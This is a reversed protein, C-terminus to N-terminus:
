GPLQQGQPPQTQAQSQALESQPQSSYAVPAGPLVEGREIADTESMARRLGEMEDIVNQVDSGLTDIESTSGTVSLEVGRAVLEDLKADLDRLRDETAIQLNSLREAGDIQARLSRMTDELVAARRPDRNQHQQIQLDIVNQQLSELDLQGVARTLRHGEQSVQWCENVAADIREEILQLRDRLPGKNTEAVARTFRAQSSQASQVYRRWPDGIVFPDIRVKPVRRNEPTRLRFLTAAVWAVGGAILGLPGFAAIAGGGVVGGLLLSAPSTVAEAIRRPGLKAILQGSANDSM